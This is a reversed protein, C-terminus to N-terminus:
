EDGENQELFKELRKLRGEVMTRRANIWVEARSLADPALTCTRVRGRKESQLLGSAELVAIHQMVAPLSIDMPGALDSVSLPGTSLREIMSRRHGDALAQFMRDLTPDHNIM